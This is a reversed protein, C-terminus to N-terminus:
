RHTSLSVLQFLQHNLLQSLGDLKRNKGRQSKPPEECSVFKLKPRIWQWWGDHELMPDHGAYM